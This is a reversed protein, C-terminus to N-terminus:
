IYTSLQSYTHQYTLLHINILINILPQMQKKYSNSIRIPYSSITFSWKKPKSKAKSATLEQNVAFGKKAM